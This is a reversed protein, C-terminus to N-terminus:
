VWKPARMAALGIDVEPVVRAESLALVVAVVEEPRLQKLILRSLGLLEDLRSRRRKVGANPAVTFSLSQEVKTATDRHM